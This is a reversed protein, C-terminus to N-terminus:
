KCTTGDEPVVDNVLYDTVLDDICPKGDSAVGHGDGENTILVGSQLTEAVRVGAEYPTVPDNTTSIVLIPPAGPASTAVVPKPAVPWYACRVYDNVLAEGFHPSDKAAEKGAAFFADPDGTPWPADLCSVAFYVEFDGFGIYGDAMEVLGSGDGALADALAADLEPWLSESYLAYGIGLNAEGPGAPRDATPAPIGGPKEALALVREVAAIIDGRTECAGSAQCDDAFRQLGLEFGQAQDAAQELGDAGLEVVADIIMKDVRAPFLHAYEQGIATGYSSGLYSLQDDGMAARVADMDRAVDSTGVHPLLDTYKAACDAVYDESISRYAAEDAATEFTPDVGYLDTADVGCDMPTSGGIGRPDVGVIDYHETVDSPLVSALGPAYDAASAGPGGPNTFLAGYREGRAPVRTVYIEITDGEPDSYDLPVDLTTCEVGGCDDWSIPVPVFGDPGGAVTTTGGAETTTTDGVGVPNDAEKACGAALLGLALLIAATRGSSRM